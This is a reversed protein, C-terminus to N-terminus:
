KIWVELHYNVKFDVWCNYFPRREAIISACVTGQRSRAALHSGLCPPSINVTAKLINAHGPRCLVFPGRILSVWSVKGSSRLMWSWLTAKKSVIFAGLHCLLGGNVSLFSSGLSMWRPPAATCTMQLSMGYTHPPRKSRQLVRQDVLRLCHSYPWVILWPSSMLLPRM